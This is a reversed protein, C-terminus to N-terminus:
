SAPWCAMFILGTALGYVLGDVVSKAVVSAKHGYWILYWGHAGAFGLFAITSTVRLAVGGPDGKPIVLMAVYAVLLAVIVNYLFSKLMAKGMKVPGRPLITLHGSPGKTYKEVWAPDKMADPADCHPFTYMGAPIDGLHARTGEEDPLGSWDSRHHKLVMHMLFSLFFVAVGSLLIPMWLDLLTPM